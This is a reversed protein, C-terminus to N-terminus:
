GPHSVIPVIELPECEGVAAPGHVVFGEDGDVLYTLLASSIELQVGRMKGRHDRVLSVSRITHGVLPAMNPTASTNFLTWKGCQEVFARNEDSLPEAFPDEWPAAVIRVTEGDSRRWFHVTFGGDLRVQLLCESQKIVGDFVYFGQEITVIQQGVLHVLVAVPDDGQIM